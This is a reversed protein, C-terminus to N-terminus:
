KRLIEEENVALGIKYIAYRLSIRTIEDFDFRLDMLSSRWTM